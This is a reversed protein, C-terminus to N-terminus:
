NMFRQSVEYGFWLSVPYFGFVLGPSLTLNWEKQSLHLQLINRSSWIGWWGLTGEGQQKKRAQHTASSEALDEESPLLPVWDVCNPGGM